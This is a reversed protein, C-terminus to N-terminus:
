ECCCRLISCNHFVAICIKLYKTKWVEMSSKREHDTYMSKIAKSIPWKVITLIDRSDDCGTGGNLSIM